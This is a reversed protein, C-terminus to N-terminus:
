NLTKVNITLPWDILLDEHFTKIEYDVNRNESLRLRGGDPRFEINPRFGDKEKLRGVERVADEKVAERARKMSSFSGALTPERGDYTKLLIYNKRVRGM